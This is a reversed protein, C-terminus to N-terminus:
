LYLRREVFIHWVFNIFEGGAQVTGLFVYAKLLSEEIPHGTGRIQVKYQEVKPGEPNVLAYLTPIGNQEIVSLFEAGEPAEITQSDTIDLPYKWIAKM